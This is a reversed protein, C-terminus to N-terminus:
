RPREDTCQAYVSTDSGWNPDSGWSDPMSMDPEPMSDTFDGPPDDFRDAVPRADMPSALGPQSIRAALGSQAWALLPAM